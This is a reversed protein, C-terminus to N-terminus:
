GGGGAPPRFQSGYKADIETAKQLLQSKTANPNAKYFNRWESGIQRLHLESNVEKPISRLNELSHIQAETVEGPYLTLARQPVAHHVVVRGELEPHKSFFTARYDNSTANGFKAGASETARGLLKGIAEGAKGLLSGIKSGVADLIKGLGSKVAPGIAEAVKGIAADALDGMPGGTAVAVEDYTPQVGGLNGSDEAKWDASIEGAMRGANAFGSGGPVYTSVDGAPLTEGPVTLNELGARNFENRLAGLKHELAGMEAVDQQMRAYLQADSLNSHRLGEHAQMNRIWDARLAAFTANDQNAAQGFNLIAREQEQSAVVKPKHAPPAANAPPAHAPLPKPKSGQEHDNGQGVKGKAAPHLPPHVNANPNQAPQTQPPHYVPKPPDKKTDHGSPDLNNIPDNGAYRFLSSDGGSEKTPDESLFRGTAADYYRGNNGSGLLYLAIERDLYYQKKGGAPSRWCEADRMTCRAHRPLAARHTIDARFNRLGSRLFRRRFQIESITEAKAVMSSKEGKLYGGM